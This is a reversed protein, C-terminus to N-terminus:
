SLTVFFGARPPGGELPVRMLWRSSSPNDPLRSYLLWKGDPSVRAQWEFREDAALLKPPAGDLSQKYIGQVGDRNSRYILAKGDPTWDCPWDWTDIVTFRRLNRLRGNPAPAGVEATYITSNHRNETFVLKKRDATVSTPYMCFGTWNTLRRPQEVIEGSRLDHRMVWFNCPRDPTDPTLASFVVRGDGLELAGEGFDADKVDPFKLIVSPGGELDRTIWKLEQAEDNLKVYSVRRGDSTWSLWGIAGEDGSEFLKRPHQGNADMLWIERPGLRGVNGAFAILRGDPSIAWAFGTGIRRPVGDAISVLWITADGDVEDRHNKESPLTNALFKTSDPFWAGCSWALKQSRLNDPLVLDRTEGTDLLKIHLGKTDSYALYRGNPSIKGDSTPSESSNATLQRMTIEPTLLRSQSQPKIAWGITVAICLVVSAAVAWWGSRRRKAEQRLKQLDARIEAATQYRSQLNMELAKNIIRGLKKPLAPNVEPAAPPTWNPTADQLLPRTEGAVPRKGTMMEHLVLGFSFLDTRADLREGRIQEPSMYGATGM